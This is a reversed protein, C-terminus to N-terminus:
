EDKTNKVSKFLEATSSLVERIKKVIKFAKSLINNGTIDFWNENISSIEMLTFICLLLNTFIAKTPIEIIYELFSLLKKTFPTLMYYDLPFVALAFIFYGLSKVIYGKRLMKSEFVDKFLRNERKAIVRLAFMKVITDLFIVGMLIITCLEIPSFFAFVMSVLFIIKKMM